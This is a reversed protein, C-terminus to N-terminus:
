ERRPFGRERYKRQELLAKLDSKSYFHKKNFTSPTLVGSKVWRYYTSSTINFLEQVDKADLLDDALDAEEAQEAAWSRSDTIHRLAHYIKELLAYIMILLKRFSMQEVQGTSQPANNTRKM